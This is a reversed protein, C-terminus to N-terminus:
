RELEKVRLKLMKVEQILTEKEKELQVVQTRFAEADKYAETPLVPPVYVGKEGDEGEEEEGEDFGGLQKVVPLIYWRWAPLVLTALMAALIIKIFSPPLISGEKEATEDVAVDFCKEWAFGILVGIAMVTSRMATRKRKHMAESGERRFGGTPTQHLVEDEKDAQKDLLYMVVFSLLTVICATVVDGLVGFDAGGLGMATLIADVSFMILWSSSFDCVLGVWVRGRWMETTYLTHLYSLYGIALGIFLQLFAQAYDVRTGNPLDGEENPLAGSIWFRITQVVLFSCTLAMVDNETEETAEDWAKEMEDEEGDDSLSVWMRVKDTVTFLGWLGLFAMPLILVSGALKSQLQAWASISAFGTIHGLIVAWSKLDLERQENAEKSEDVEGQWPWTVARSVTALFVQLLLFWVMSHIFAVKMEMTESSGQLFMAKIADNFAQYMLVAVFISITACIVKWTYIKMERDSHNVMYFTGMMFSVSGLLMIAIGLNMGVAEEDKNCSADVLWLMAFVQLVRMAAM